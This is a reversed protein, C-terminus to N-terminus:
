RTIATNGSDKAVSVATRGWYHAYAVNQFHTPDPSIDLFYAINGDKTTLRPVVIAGTGSRLLSYRADLERSYTQPIHRALGKYTRLLNNARLDHTNLSILLAIASLILLGQSIPIGTNSPHSLFGRLALSLHLIFVIWGLVFFVYVTNMIRPYFLAGLGLYVPLMMVYMLALPLLFASLLGLLPRRLPYYQTILILLLSGFLLFPDLMWSFAFKQTFYLWDAISVLFSRGTQAGLRVYNGPAILYVIATAICVLIVTGFLKQHQANGRRRSIMWQIVCTSLLLAMIMESTGMILICLLFLLFRQAPSPHEKLRILVLLFSAFLAAALTHVVAGTYWFFSESLGDFNVLLLAITAIAISNILSPPIGTYRRLAARVLAYYSAGFALMLLLCAIRYGAISHWHLPSLMFLLMSCYRGGSTYYHHIFDAPLSTWEAYLYDDIGSPQIYRCVYAMPLVALLILAQLAMNFLKSALLLGVWRHLSSRSLHEGAM